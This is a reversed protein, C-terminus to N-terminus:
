APTEKTFLRQGLVPIETRRFWSVLACAAFTICGRIFLSPDHEIGIEPAHMFVGLPTFLHAALAGAMVGMGGIAGFIATRPVLLAVGVILEVVASGIRGGPEAGLTTFIYTPLDAGSFKFPLTQLIIVAAAIQLVWCLVNIFKKAATATNPEPGDMPESMPVDMPADMTENM